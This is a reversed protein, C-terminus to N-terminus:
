SSCFTVTQIINGVQLMSIVSNYFEDVSIKDWELIEAYGARKARFTLICNLKRPSWKLM